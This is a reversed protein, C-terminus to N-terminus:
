APMGAPTSEKRMARSAKASSSAAPQPRGDPIQIAVDDDFRRVAASLRGNTQKPRIIERPFVGDDQAERLSTGPDM